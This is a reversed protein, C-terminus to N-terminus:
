EELVNLKNEEMVDEMQLHDEMPATVDEMLLKEEKVDLKNVQVVLNINIMKIM